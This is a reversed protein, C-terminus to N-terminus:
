PGPERRMFGSTLLRRQPGNEPYIEGDEVLRSSSHLRQGGRTWDAQNRALPQPAKKGEGRDDARQQDKEWGRSRRDPTVRPLGPRATM